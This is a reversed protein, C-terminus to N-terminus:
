NFAGAEKRQLVRISACCMKLKAENAEHQTAFKALVHGGEVALLYEFGEFDGRRKRAQGGKLPFEHWYLSLYRDLDEGTLPILFLVTEKWSVKLVGHQLKKARAGKPTELVVKPGLPPDEELLERVLDPWTSLYVQALILFERHRAPESLWAALAACDAELAKEAQELSLGKIRKRLLKRLASFDMDGRIEEPELKAVHTRFPLLYRLSAPLPEAGPM